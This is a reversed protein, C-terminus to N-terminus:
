VEVTSLSANHFCTKKDEREREEYPYIHVYIDVSLYMYYKSNVACAM